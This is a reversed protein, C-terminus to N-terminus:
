TRADRVCGVGSGAVATSGCCAGVGGGGGAVGIRLQEFQLTITSNYGVHNDIGEGYVSAPQNLATQAPQNLATGCLDHLHMLKFRIKGPLTDDLAGVVGHLLLTEAQRLGGGGQRSTFFSAFQTILEVAIEARRNPLSSAFVCVIRELYEGREISVMGLFILQIVTANRGVAFHVNRTANCFADYNEVSPLDYDGDRLHEVTADVFEDLAAREVVGERVLMAILRSYLPIFSHEQYCKGLIMDAVNVSHHSDALLSAVCPALRSFNADTLKNLNAMISRVISASASGDDGAFIRNRVAPVGACSAGISCRSTWSAARSSSRTSSGMGHNSGGCGRPRGCSGGSGRAARGAHHGHARPGHGTGPAHGTGVGLTSSSISLARQHVQVAAELTESIHALAACFRSRIRQVSDTHATSGRVRVFDCDHLRIVDDETTVFDLDDHDGGGGM